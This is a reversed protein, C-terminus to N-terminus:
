RPWTKSPPLLITNVALACEHGGGPFKVQTDPQLVSFVSGTGCPEGSLLILIFLSAQILKSM